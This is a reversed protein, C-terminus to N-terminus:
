VEQIQSAVMDATHTWLVNPYKRIAANYDNWEDKDTFAGMHYIICAIEEDTLEMGYRQAYIVSKMGHGKIIPKNSYKYSNTDIDYDYLDVKCLDHLMGVIVPSDKREWQLDLKETLDMLAMTVNASHKFLGCACAGHYKTSAPATFFGKAELVPRIEKLSGCYRNFFADQDGFADFDVVEFM